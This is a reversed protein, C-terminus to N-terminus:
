RVELLDVAQNFYRLVNRGKETTRYTVHGGEEDRAVLDQDLLSEFVKMMPKWSLNTRYMIRTPKHTGKGIAKLVDVYIELRSRKPTV